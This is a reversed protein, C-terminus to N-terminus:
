DWNRRDLYQRSAAQSHEVHAQASTLRQHQYSELIRAVDGMQDDEFAASLAAVDYLGQRFGGGVMPSAAHAADGALAVHGRYLQDPWYQVVPTAFVLARRLAIELAERWPTPWRQSAAVELERRVPEPVDDAAFRGM